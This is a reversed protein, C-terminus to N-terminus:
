PLLTVAERNLIRKSKNQANRHNSDFAFVLEKHINQNKLAVKQQWRNKRTIDSTKGHYQETFWDHLKM